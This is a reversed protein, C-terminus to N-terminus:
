KILKVQYFNSGDDLNLMYFGRKLSDGLTLDINGNKVTEEWVDLLAGRADFLRIQVDGSVKNKFVINLTNEHIPNPYVIVDQTQTELINVNAAIYQGGRYMCMVLANSMRVEPFDSHAFQRIESNRIEKVAVPHPEVEPSRREVGIVSMYSNDNLLMYNMDSPGVGSVSGYSIFNFLGGLMEVRSNNKAIMCPGRQEGFKYGLLWLQGGDVVVHPFNKELNLNRAWVKQNNISWYGEPKYEMPETTPVFVQDIFLEGAGLKNQYAKKLRKPILLERLVVSKTSNNQIWVTNPMDPNPSSVCQFILADGNTDEIQWVPQGSASFDDTPRTNCYGGHFRKVNGRIFVTKDPEYRANKARIYVMPKGSDIADQVAQAHQSKPTVDLDVIAWDAFDNEWPVVPTDKIELNLSENPYDSWLKYVKDSVFEGNESVNVPTGNNNVTNSYGTTKVNRVFSYCNNIIAYDSQVSNRLESDIIVGVPPSNDNGTEIVIAPVNAVSQESLLKRVQISKDAARIGSVRQNRITVNEFTYAIIFSRLYVAEDFGEILTNCIYGIGGLNRDIIIGTKGSNGRAIIDVNDIRGLNNNHYQLAIAGPNGDGVELTLNFMSNNFGTNSKDVEMWAFLIKPNNKDNYGTAYDKLRIKTNEKKEGVVIIKETNTDGFTLKDSVLYDGEPFYLTLIRQDFNRTAVEAKIAAMANQIAETDDTVGDGKAGYDKVSYFSSLVEPPFPGILQGYSISLVFLGLLIFLFRKKYNYTAMSM